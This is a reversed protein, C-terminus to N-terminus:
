PRAAAIATLWARTKSDTEVLGLDPHNRLGSHTAAALALAAVAWDAARAKDGLALSVRVGALCMRFRSSQFTPDGM